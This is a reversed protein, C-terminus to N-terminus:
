SRIDDVRPIVEIGAVRVSTEAEVVLGAGIRIRRETLDRTLRVRRSGHRKRKPELESRLDDRLFSDFVHGQLV